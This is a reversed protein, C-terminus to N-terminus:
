KSEKLTAIPYGELTLLRRKRDIGGGYGGLTGDSRIVRHCPILISAPNAGVANGIARVAKPREIRDAIWQYTRVEGYPIQRITNWVQQQFDTAHALQVSLEVFNIPGGAFYLDLLQITRTLVPLTPPFTPESLPAVESFSVRLIRNEEAIIDIWGVPSKYCFSPIGLLNRFQRLNQEGGLAKSIRELPSLRKM